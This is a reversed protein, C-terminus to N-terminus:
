QQVGGATPPAVPAPAAFALSCLPCGIVINNRTLRLQERRKQMEQQFQEDSLGVRQGLDIFMNAVSRNGSGQWNRPDPVNKNSPSNDMFGIIHLITGKPLLPASDDAYDYGRVWNHDYGVCNLTQITYGWIAELCMRDGPAHLHPEFSVIKINENAVAYAHLQQNAEMPRIDIDVGNGLGNSLRASHYSPKYDKPMFKFGVELHAKTDRGNSHLHVSNSVIQSGARLLRAANQDFFDANRGVEHVPWGTGGAAQVAVDASTNPDDAGGPVRTSWIMHHFVYHGGVTQRGSGENPVDNVERVQVASVYRDEPVGIPISEIEGWWDPANAKVLVEKTKIVVDPQGINWTDFSQFSKAPPMDAPNGQPAGLEVWKAIKALEQESLSPDDKFHQIGINKEVYWPPMVGKHPGIHTRQNIARAYPRVDEYTVLSMPAVGDPRHCNQCSRQLIPAIDKAFTVDAKAASQQAKVGFPAFVILGALVAIATLTLNRSRGIFVPM